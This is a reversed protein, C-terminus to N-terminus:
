AAKKRKTSHKGRYAIGLERSAITMAELWTTVGFARYITEMCPILPVRDPNRAQHSHPLSGHKDAWARLQEMVHERSARAKRKPSQGVERGEMGFAALAANWNGYLSICHWVFAESIDRAAEHFTPSRKLRQALAAIPERMQEECRNRFNRWGATQMGKLPPRRRRVGMLELERYREGARRLAKVRSSREDADLQHWANQKAAVFSSSRLKTMRPLQLADMVALKGGIDAHASTLHRSLVHFWRGCGRVPCRLGKKADEQLAGLGITFDPDVIETAVVPTMPPLAGGIAMKARSLSTYAHAM